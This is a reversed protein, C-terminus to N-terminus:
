KEIRRRNLKEKATRKADKITKELEKVTALKFQGEKKMPHNTYVEMEIEGYIKTIQLDLKALKRIM